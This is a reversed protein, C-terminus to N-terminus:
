RKRLILLQASTLPIGLRVLSRRLRDEITRILPFRLYYGHGIFGTHQIVDFGFSAFRGHLTKSPNGCMKYYAPFKVQHGSFDRGPQVVRLVAHAVSEPMYRNCALPLNYPSAYLHIAIGGPAMIAAINAHAVAPRAIHELLMISFVIDFRENGVAHLFDEAPGSLDARVKRCYNPAKELEAQSIDIVTYQLALREVFDRKLLPNAGGGIDAIRTTYRREIEGRIFSNAREWGPFNDIVDLIKAGGSM